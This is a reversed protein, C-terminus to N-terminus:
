RVDPASQNRRGGAQLRKMAAEAVDKILPGDETLLSGPSQAAAKWLREAEAYEGSNEACRGLLFQVTAASIGPGAQLKVQELARRAEDVNGLALFAVGVNLLATSRELTSQARIGKARYDLLLKNFLVTRDDPSVVRPTMTVPLQFTKAGGSRKVDLSLTQGNQSAAVLRMFETGNQVPQQNVRVIVDGVALGASAAVGGADVRAVAAGELDLVDIVLMAVSPKTLSPVDRLQRGAELLSVQDNLDVELVDPTSSGAALLSVYIHEPSGDPVRTVTAVGQVGLAASLQTSVDIRAAPAYKAAAGGAPVPNFNLDLDLWGENLQLRDLHQRVLDKPVAFLGVSGSAGLLQEVRARPDTSGRVGPDGGTATLLACSPRLNATLNVTEGAALKLRKVFRGSNSRVELTHTGECVHDLVIPLVGKPESDLYVSLGATEAEVRVTAVAPAMVRPALGYDRPEDISMETRGVAYCNKRFEIPHVGPSIGEIALIGVTSNPPLPPDPFERSYEPPIPGPKTTGSLVNDVWVEIDPPSTVVRLIASTRLLTVDVAQGTTSALVQFEKKVPAYGPRWVRISHTGAALPVPDPTLVVPQGDLETEAEKPLVTIIVTGVTARRAEDFKAIIRPSVTAALTHRPDRALLAKFDATAGEWDLRVKLRTLARLELATVLVQVDSPKLATDTELRSVIADLAPLARDFEQQEYLKRAEALADTQSSAQGSPPVTQARVPQMAMPIVLLLVGIVWPAPASPRPAADRRDLLRGNM